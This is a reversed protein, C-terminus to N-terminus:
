QQRYAEGTTPHQTTTPQQVKQIRYVENGHLQYKQIADRTVLDRLTSAVQRKFAALTSEAAPVTFEVNHMDVVEEIIQDRTLHEQSSKVIDTVERALQELRKLQTM